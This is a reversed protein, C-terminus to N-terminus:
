IVETIGELGRVEPLCGPMLLLAHVKSKVKPEVMLWLRAGQGHQKAAGLMVGQMQLSPTLALTSCQPSPETRYPRARLIDWASWLWDHPNQQCPQVRFCCGHSRERARRCTVSSSGLELWVTM